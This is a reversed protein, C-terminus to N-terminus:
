INVQWFGGIRWLKRYPSDRRKQDFTLEGQSFAKDKKGRERGVIKERMRAQEEKNKKDKERKNEKKRERFNENHFLELRICFYLSYYLAEGTDWEWGWCSETMALRNCIHLRLIHAKAWITLMDFFFMTSKFIVLINDCRCFNILM